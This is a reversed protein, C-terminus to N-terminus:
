RWCCANSRIPISRKVHLCALSHPMSIQRTISSHALVLSTTIIVSVGPLCRVSRPDVKWCYSGSSLMPKHKKAMPPPCAFHWVSLRWPKMGASLPPPPVETETLPQQLAAIRAALASASPNDFLTSEPLDIRHHQGIKALLTVAGVSDLGYSFLSQQPNINRASVNGLLDAAQQCIWCIMANDHNPTTGRPTQEDWIQHLKQRQWADRLARRRVKGSTTRLLTGKRILVVRWVALQHQEAIAQRVTNVLQQLEEDSARQAELVLVLREENQEESAFAAAGDAIALPHAAVATAEIDNPYHCEGRVILIDRLRGTIFLQGQHIFGLDGTRLYHSGSDAGSLTAGFTEDTQQERRWYGQAVAPGSIWIEGTEGDSVPQHSDPNVIRLDQGGFENGCGVYRRTHNSAREAIVVKNRLLAQKDIDLYVPERASNGAAILTAEALGYSPKLADRRLGCAKFSHWFAELQEASVPEASPVLSVISSLDFTAVREPQQRAADTCRQLAFSPCPLVTGRQESAIELWRLPDKVFATPPLYVATNGTLLPSLIGMILGLDHYLPLWSVVVSDPAPLTLCHLFKLNTLLNNHRNIVGKPQGTSGSTYQLFAITTGDIDPAHWRQQWGAEDDTHTDWVALQHHAAFATLDGGSAKIIEAGTLIVTPQCDQAIADLKGLVRKVRAPGSLNVPVGIIGAYFCALLTVVYDVGSPYLILATCGAAYEQQLRAAQARVRSALMGFTVVQESGDHAHFRLAPLESQQRAYLELGDVLTTFDNLGLHHSTM